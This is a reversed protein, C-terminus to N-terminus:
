VSVHGSIALPHVLHYQRCKRRLSLTKKLLLSRIKFWELAQRLYPLSCRGLVERRLWMRNYLLSSLRIPRIYLTKSVLRLHLYKPHKRLNHKRPRRLPKLKRRIAKRLKTDNQINCKIYPLTIHNSTQNQASKSKPQHKNGNPTRADATMPNFHWACLFIILCYISHDMHSLMSGVM